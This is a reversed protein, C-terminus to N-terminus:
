WSTNRTFQWIAWGAARLGGVGFTDSNKGTLIFEPLTIGTRMPLILRAARELGSSDAGWLFLSIRKTSSPHPHLFLLGACTCYAWFIAAYRFKIARALLSKTSSTETCLLVMQIRSSWIRVANCFRPELYTTPVLSSLIEQLSTTGIWFKWM